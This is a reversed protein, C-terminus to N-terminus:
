SDMQDLCKVKCFLNVGDAEVTDEFGLEILAEAEKIREYGLTILLM